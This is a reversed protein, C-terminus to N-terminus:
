ALMFASVAFATAASLALKTSGDAAVNTAKDCFYGKGANDTATKPVTGNQAISACIKPGGFLDKGDASKNIQCCKFGDGCGGSPCVAWDSAAASATAILAIVAFKMKSKLNKLNIGM